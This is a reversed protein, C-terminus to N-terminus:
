ASQLAAVRSAQPIIFLELAQAPAVSICEPGVGQAATASIFSLSSPPIGPELWQAWKRFILYSVDRYWLRFIHIQM